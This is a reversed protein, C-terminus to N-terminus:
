YRARSEKRTDIATQLLFKRIEEIGAVFVLLSKDLCWRTWNQLSYCREKAPVAIGNGLESLVDIVFARADSQQSTREVRLCCRDRRAVIKLM